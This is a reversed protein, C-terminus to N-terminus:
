LWRKTRLAYDDWEAGFNREMAREEPQVQLEDITVVFAAVPLWTALGGRGLAHAALAGAMGVYMPNRTRRYPGDTVLTTAREPHLPHVTTQAARFRQAAAGALAVSGAALVSAALKRATGADEKPALLRQVGAFGLAIVPPPVVPM